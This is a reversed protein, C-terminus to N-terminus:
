TTCPVPSGTTILTNVQLTGANITTNGDYNTVGTIFVTGQGTKTVGGVGTIPGSLDLDATIRAPSRDYHQRATLLPARPM